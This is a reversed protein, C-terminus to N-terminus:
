SRRLRRWAGPSAGQLRTFTRTFHSQDSFGCASAVEQLTDDTAQLLTKALELRQLLLWRYPTVGTAKKFSRSFYASSLGCASSVDSLTVNSRLSSRLFEKALHEHRASMRGPAAVSSHKEGYRGILHTAAALMMQDVFLHNAAEPRQFEPLVALAMHLLTEDAFDYAVHDKLLDMARRASSPRMDQLFAKSFVLNLTFVRRLMPSSYAYRLDHVGFTGRPSTPVQLSKGSRMLTFSNLPQLTIVTLFGDLEPSPAMTGDEGGETRYLAAISRPDSAAGFKLYSLIDSRRPESLLGPANRPRHSSLELGSM